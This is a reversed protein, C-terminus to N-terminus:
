AIGLVARPDCDPRFRVQEDGEDILKWLAACEVREAELIQAKLDRRRRQIEPADLELPEHAYAADLDSKLKALVRDPALWAALALGDDATPKALDTRAPAAHLVVRPGAIRLSAGPVAAGELRPAGRAALEEVLGPLRKAVSDRRPVANELDDLEARVDGIRGALREAIEAPDGAPLEIPVVQIKSKASPEGGKVRPRGHYPEGGESTHVVIDVRKAGIPRHSNVLRLCNEAVTRVGASEAAVAVSEAQTRELRERARRMDRDMRAVDLETATGARMAEVARGHNTRAAEFTERATLDAQFRLSAVDAADQAFDQIKRLRQAVRPHEAELWDHDPGNRFIATM